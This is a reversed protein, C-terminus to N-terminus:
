NSFYMKKLNKSYFVNYSSTRQFTFFFRMLNQFLSNQEIKLINNSTTVVRTNLTYSTIKLFFSVFFRDVRFRGIGGGVSLCFEKKRVCRYKIVYYDRRLDDITKVFGYVVLYEDGVVVVYPLM